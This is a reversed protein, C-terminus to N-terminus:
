IESNESEVRLAPIDKHQSQSTFSNNGSQNFGVQEFSSSQFVDNKKPSLLWILTGLILPAIIVHVILYGMVKNLSIELGILLSHTIEGLIGSIGYGLFITATWLLVNQAKTRTLGKFQAKVYLATGFGLIASTSAAAFAASPNPEM